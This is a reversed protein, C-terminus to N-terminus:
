QSVPSRYKEISIYVAKGDKFSVKVIEWLNAGTKNVFYWQPLEAMAPDFSTELNKTPLSIREFKNLYMGASRIQSLKAYLVTSADGIRISSALPLGSPWQTLAKGSNLYIARVKHDALTIQVGTDTGKLEDLLLYEYLPIRTQLDTFNTSFNGVLNLKTDRILQISDYIAQPSHSLNIGLYSGAFITDRGLLQSTPPDIIIPEVNEDTRMDCSTAAFVLTFLTGLLINKM